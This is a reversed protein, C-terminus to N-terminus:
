SAGKAARKDRARDRLCGVCGANSKYRLGSHGHPCPRGIYTKEAGTRGREDSVSEWLPIEQRIYAKITRLTIDIKGPATGRAAIQWLRSEIDEMTIMNVLDESVLFPREPNGRCV